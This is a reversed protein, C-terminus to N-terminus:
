NPQGPVHCLGGQSCGCVGQRIETSSGDQDDTQLGEKAGVRVGRNPQQNDSGQDQEPLLHESCKSSLSGHTCVEM